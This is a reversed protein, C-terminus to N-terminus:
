KIYYLGWYTQKAPNYQFNGFRDSLLFPRRRLRYSAIPAQSQMVSGSLDSWAKFRADGLPMENIKAMQADLAPDKFDGYNNGGDASASALLPVFFTVADSYDQGWGGFAIDDRASKPDQVDAYYASSDEGKLTVQFGVQNLSQAFNQALDDGPAGTIYYLNIKIPTKVGSEKILAKAKATDPVNPYITTPADKSLLNVPLFQSWPSGTYKGGQIKIMANRNIAYNVAQRLKVNKFPSDANTNLTWYATAADAVSYFRDKYKPDNGISNANAGALASNDLNMDLTNNKLNLLMQEPSMISYDIGDINNTGPDEIMGAKVNDAWVPNRRIKFDRKPQVETFMYPGTMAPPMTTHKHPSDGPVICAFRLAVAYLFAPEAKTLKFSIDQGSTTIGSITKPDSALPKGNKDTATYKDVGVIDNYYGSQLPAFQAGPDLMREYTGIVDAPTVEAGNSFKVGKRLTFTYTLGDSSVKPMDQALGPRLTTADPGTTDPYDLLGNCTIYELSWVDGYYSTGDYYDYDSQNAIKLIGGKKVATGTAASVLGTQVSGVNTAAVGGGSSSQDKKASTSSGCAAATLAVLAVASMATVYRKM